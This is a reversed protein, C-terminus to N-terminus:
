EEELHGNEMAVVPTTAFQALGSEEMLIAWDEDAGTSADLFRDSALIEAVEQWIGAELYYALREDVNGSSDAVRQIEGGSFVITNAEDDESGCNLVVRWRYNKGEELQPADTPMSIGVIGGAEPVAFTAEYLQPNRSGSEHDEVYIVGSADDMAPVNILFTPHASATLYSPAKDEGAVPVVPAAGEPCSGRSFGGRRFGSSRVRFSFGRNRLRNALLVDGTSDFAPVATTLSQAANAEFGIVGTIGVTLAILQALRKM